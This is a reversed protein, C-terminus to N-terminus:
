PYFCDFSLSFYYITALLALGMSFAFHTIYTVVWVHLHSVRILSVILCLFYLAIEIINNIICSYIWMCLGSFVYLFLASPVNSLRVCAYQPSVAVVLYMTTNLALNVSTAESYQQCSVSSYFWFIFRQYKGVVVVVVVLSFVLLGFCRGVRFLVVTM